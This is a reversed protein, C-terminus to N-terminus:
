RGPPPPSSVPQLLGLVALDVRLAVPDRFRLATMGLDTAAQVNAPADDVYVCAEATLGTREFLHRFIRPDPKSVRVEGSIVITEFWELFPYRPRAIPFKEASWNSLAVLRVGAQRLDALIEVTGEIPGGLTEEWREDYAAILDRRDPYIAALTEVAERWSRGADQEANWAPTTVEALFAEMAADDDFLTRYLYRPNWDILVGGLDFVAANLPTVV